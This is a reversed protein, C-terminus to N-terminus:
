ALIPIIQQSLIKQDSRSITQSNSEFLGLVAWERQCLPSSEVIDEETHEDDDKEANDDERELPPLLIESRPCIRHQLPPKSAVSSPPTITKPSLTASM